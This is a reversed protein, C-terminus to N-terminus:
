GGPRHIGTLEHKPQRLMLEVVARRPELGEFLVRHAMEVIPMEVGAHNALSLAVRTANVGEAVEDMGRLIEDLRRGAALERGLRHNRSLDSYCTAILDGMGALGAFTLPQAGLAQGLRTMEALGRTLLAAKANDGFGLGDALGAGIAFINKLAGALEVGVVDGSTYVRFAPAMFARQVRAALSLDICAIVAAAPLGAAVEASLNPGSLVCVAEARGQPRSAGLSLPPLCQAIVESIRLGSGVELGKVASVVAAGPPVFPGARELNHRVTHSPVAVVVLQAGEFAHEGSDVSLSPPFRLGPRRRQNEGDARLRAAEEESRAWLGVELGNRALLVALTTGWSTTGIVAARRIASRPSM